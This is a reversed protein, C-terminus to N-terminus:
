VLSDEVLQTKSWRGGSVLELGVHPRGLGGTVSPHRKGPRGGRFALRLSDVPDEAGAPVVVVEGCGPPARRKLPDLAPHLFPQDRWLRDVPRLGIRKSLELTALVQEALVPVPLDRRGLRSRVELETDCRQRTRGDSRTALTFADRAKGGVRAQTHSIQ